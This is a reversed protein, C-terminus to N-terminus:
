DEFLIPPRMPTRPPLEFPPSDEALERAEDMRKLWAVRRHAEEIGVKDVLANFGEPLEDDPLFEVKPRQAPEDLLILKAKQRGTKRIPQGIPYFRENEWYGEFEQVKAQAQM